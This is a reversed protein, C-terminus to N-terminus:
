KSAQYFKNNGENAFVLYSAGEYFIMDCSKFGAHLVIRRGFGHKGKWYETIEFVVGDTGDDEQYLETVTGVFIAEYKEYLQATKLTDADVACSCPKYKDNEWEGQVVSRDPYELVGSGHRKNNKWDGYYQLGNAWIHKGKGNAEDKLWYGEHKSGDSFKLIGWGSKQGKKYSGVYTSGDKWTYTGYGQKVGREWDGTYKDGNSYTMTGKGSMLNNKWRGAYVRGDQWTCTGYGQRLGRKLKGEYVGQDVQTSDPSQAQLSLNLLFFCNVLVILRKNM